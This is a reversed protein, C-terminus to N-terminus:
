ADPATKFSQATPSRESDDADAAPEPAAAPPPRKRCTSVIADIIGSCQTLKTLALGESLVLFLSMVGVSIQLVYSVTCDTM